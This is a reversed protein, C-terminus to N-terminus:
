ESTEVITEISLTWLRERETEAWASLDKMVDARLLYSEGLWGGTESDETTEVDLEGDETNYFVVLAPKMYTETEKMGMSKEGKTAYRAM